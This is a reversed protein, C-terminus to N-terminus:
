ARGLRARGILLIVGTLLCWPLFGDGPGQGGGLVVNVAGFVGGLGAAVGLVWRGRLDGRILVVAILVLAVGLLVGAASSLAEASLLLFRATAPDLNDPLKEASMDFLLTPYAFLGQGMVSMATFAGALTIALIGPLEIRASAARVVAVLMVLALVWALIYMTSTVRIRSFNDVYFQLFDREPDGTTPVYNGRYGGVVALTAVLWVPVAFAAIAGTLAGSRRAAVAPASRVAERTMGGETSSGEVPSQSPPEEM